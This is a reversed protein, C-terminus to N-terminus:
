RKKRKTAAAHFLPPLNLPTPDYAAREMMPMVNKPQKQLLRNRFQRMEIEKQKMLRLLLKNVKPTPAVGLSPPHFTPIPEIYFQGAGVPLEFFAKVSKVKHKM